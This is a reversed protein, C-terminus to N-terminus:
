RCPGWGDGREAHGEKEQLIDVMLYARMDRQNPFHMWTWMRGERKIRRWLKGCLTTRRSWMCLWKSVSSDLKLRGSLSSKKGIDRDRVRLPWKWDEKRTVDQLRGLYHGIKKRERCSYAWLRCDEKQMESPKQHNKNQQGKNTLKNTKSPTAKFKRQKEYTLVQLTEITQSKCKPLPHCKKTVCPKSCVLLYCSRMLWCVKGICELVKNQPNFPYCTHQM